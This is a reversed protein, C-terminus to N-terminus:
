KRGNKVDQYFLMIERDLDDLWEVGAEEPIDPEGIRKMANMMSFLGAYFARRTETRQVEPADKPMVGKVYSEWQQACTERYDM